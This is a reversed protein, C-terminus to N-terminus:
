EVMGELLQVKAKHIKNKHLWLEALLTAIKTISTTHDYSFDM